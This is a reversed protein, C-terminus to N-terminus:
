QQGGLASGDVFAPQLAIPEPSYGSPDMIVLEATTGSEANRRYSVEGILWTKKSIKLKPIDVFVLTNPTWLVGGSDRWSDVTVSIVAARGARRNMEWVARRRALDMFGQVAEAVIYRERVRKVNPDSVTAVMNAGIGADTFSLVSQAFCTYNSFRETSSFLVSAAQVNAGQVIGGTARTGDTGSQARALKLSGDPQDYVLLQSYRSVREIIEFPTEGIFVNFQPISVLDSIDCSVSIGYHAALKTAVDLASTGSIQGNPWVASCDVLDECKSRGAVRVTHGAKSIAPEYTDVYGTLVLDAGLDILCEDGTQVVVETVENQEIQEETLGIDFDSVCREIGRTVRIDTWGTITQNGVSLYLEDDM